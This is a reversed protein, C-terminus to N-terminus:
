YFLSMPAFICLSRVIYQHTKGEFWVKQYQFIICNFDQLKGIPFFHKMETPM